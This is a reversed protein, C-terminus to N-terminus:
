VRFPEVGVVLEVGYEPGILTLALVVTLAM